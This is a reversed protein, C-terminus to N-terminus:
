IMYLSHIITKHTLIHNFNYKLMFTIICKVKHKKYITGMHTRFPTKLSMTLLKSIFGGRSKVHKCLLIDIGFM